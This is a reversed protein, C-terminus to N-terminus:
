HLQAPTTATTGATRGYTAPPSLRRRTPVIDGRDSRSRKRWLATALAAAALGLSIGAITKRNGRLRSVYGGSRIAKLKAREYQRALEEDDGLTAIMQTHEGFARDLEDSFAEFRSTWEASNKDGGDLSDLMRKLDKHAAHPDRSVTSGGRAEAAPMIIKMMLKLHRRVESDLQKFLGERSTSRRIQDALQRINAHDVSVIHRLDM